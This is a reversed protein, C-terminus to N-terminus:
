KPRKAAILEFNAKFSNYCKFDGIGKSSRTLESKYNFFICEAQTAIDCKVNQLLQTGHPPLSM